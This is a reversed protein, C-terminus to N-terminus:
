FIDKSKFIIYTVDSPGPKMGLNVLTEFDSHNRGVTNWGDGFPPLKDCETISPFTYVANESPIDLNDLTVNHEEEPKRTWSNTSKPQKFGEVAYTGAYGVQGDKNAAFVFWLSITPRGDDNYLRVNKGRSSNIMRVYYLEMDYIRKVLSRDEFAKRLRTMTEDSLYKTMSILRNRYSEMDFPTDDGDPHGTVLARKLIGLLTLIDGTVGLLYDREEKEFGYVDYICPKGEKDYGSIYNLYIGGKGLALSTLQLDGIEKHMLGILKKLNDVKLSFKFKECLKMAVHIAYSQDDRGEPRRQNFISEYEVMNMDVASSIVQAIDYESMLVNHYHGEKRLLYAGHFANRFIAEAIEEYLWEQCPFLCYNKRMEEVLQGKVKAMAKELFPLYDKEFLNVIVDRLSEVPGEKIPEVPVALLTPKGIKSATNGSAESKVRPM